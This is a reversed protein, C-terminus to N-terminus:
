VNRQWEKLEDMCEEYGISQGLRFVEACKSRFGTLSGPGHPRKDNPVNAQNKLAAPLYSELETVLEELKTM